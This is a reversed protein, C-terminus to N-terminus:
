STRVTTDTDIPLAGPALSHRTPQRYALITCARYPIIYHRLYCCLDRLHSEKSLRWISLDVLPCRRRCALLLQIACYYSISLLFAHPPRLIVPANSPRLGVNSTLCSLGPLGSTCGGLEGSQRIGPLLCFVLCIAYMPSHM